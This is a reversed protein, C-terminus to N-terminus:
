TGEDLWALVASKGGKITSTVRASERDFPAGLKKEVRGIWALVGALSRPPPVPLTGDLEPRETLCCAYMGRGGDHHLTVDWANAWVGVHLVGVVKKRRRATLTVDIQWRGPRKAVDLRVAKAWEATEKGADTM